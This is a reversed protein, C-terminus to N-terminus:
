AKGLVVATDQPFNNEDELENHCSGLNPAVGKYPVKRGPGACM